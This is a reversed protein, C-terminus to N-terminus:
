IQLMMSGGFIRVVAGGRRRLATFVNILMVVAPVTNSDIPELM